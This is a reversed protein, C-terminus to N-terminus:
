FASFKKILASMKKGRQTLSYYHCRSDVACVSKQIVGDAELERLRETLTATNVNLKKQMDNFGQKSGVLIYIIMLMHRKSLLTLTKSAPCATAPTRKM